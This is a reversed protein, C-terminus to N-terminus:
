LLIGYLESRAGPGTLRVDLESKHLASGLLTSYHSLHAGAGLDARQHWFHVTDLSLAQDYFYHAKANPGVVLRSFGISSLRRADNPTKRADYLHSEVITAEAGEEVIALSRPFYFSNEPEHIFIMEFPKDVRLGKPVYLFLGGRFRSLNATEFAWFDLSA